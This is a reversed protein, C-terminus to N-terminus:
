REELRPDAANPDGIISYLEKQRESLENPPPKGSEEQIWRRVNEDSLGVDEDPDVIAGRGAPVQDLAVSGSPCEIGVSPGCLQQISGDTTQATAAGAALALAAALSVHKNM